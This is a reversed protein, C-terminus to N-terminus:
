HLHELVAQMERHRAHIRALAEQRLERSDRIGLLLALDDARLEDLAEVIEGLLHLLSEPVQRFKQHLAREIWVDDLRAWRRGLSRSAVALDSAAALMRRRDLRM